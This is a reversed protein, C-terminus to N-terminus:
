EMLKRLEIVAEYAEDRQKYLMVLYKDFNMDGFVETYNPRLKKLEETSNTLIELHRLIKETDYVKRYFDEVGSVLDLEKLLTKERDRLNAAAEYKQEKIITRKEEQLNSIEHILSVIKDKKTM